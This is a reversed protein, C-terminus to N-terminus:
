FTLSAWRLISCPCRALAACLPLGFGLNSSSSEPVTGARVLGSGGGSQLQDVNFQVGDGYLRELQEATMGAGTDQVQVCIFGGTKLTLRKGDKLEIDETSENGREQMETPRIWTSHIAIRSGEPSFKIADKL